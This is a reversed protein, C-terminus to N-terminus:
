TLPIRLNRGQCLQDPRLLKMVDPSSTALAVELSAVSLVQLWSNKISPLTPLNDGIPLYQWYMEAGWIESCPYSFTMVRLYQAGVPM